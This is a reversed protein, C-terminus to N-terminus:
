EWIRRWSIAQENEAATWTLLEVPHAIVLEVIRDHAYGAFQIAESLSSYAVGDWVDVVAGYLGPGSLDPVRFVVLATTEPFEGQSDIGVLDIVRDRTLLRRLEAVFASRQAAVDADNM